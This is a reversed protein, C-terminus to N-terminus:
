TIYNESGEQQNLFNNKAYLYFNFFCDNYCNLM